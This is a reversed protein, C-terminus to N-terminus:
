GEGRTRALVEAVATRRDGELEGREELELVEVVVEFLEDIELEGIITNIRGISRRPGERDMSQGLQAHLWRLPGRTPGVAELWDIVLRVGDRPLVISIYEPLQKRTKM